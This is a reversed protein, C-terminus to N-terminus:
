LALTQHVADAADAAAAAAADTYCAEVSLKSDKSTIVIFLLTDDSLGAIQKLKLSKQFLCQCSAHDCYHIFIM